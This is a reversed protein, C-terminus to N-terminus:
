GEIKDIYVIDDIGVDGLPLVALHFVYDVGDMIERLRERRTIEGQVTKLSDSLQFKDSQVYKDFVIIEEASKTTLRNVLHSGIFGAGGIILVKSGRLM